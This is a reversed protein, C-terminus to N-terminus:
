ESGPPKITQGPPASSASSAPSAEEEALQQEPASALEAKPTAPAKKAVKKKDAATKM